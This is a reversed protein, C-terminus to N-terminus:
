PVPYSWTSPRRCWALHHGGPHQLWLWPTSAWGMWYCWPLTAARTREGTVPERWGQLAELLLTRLGVLRESTVADM